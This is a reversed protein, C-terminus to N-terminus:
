LYKIFCNSPIEQNSPFNCSNLNKKNSLSADIDKYTFKNISIYIKNILIYTFKKQKKKLFDFIIFRLMLLLYM